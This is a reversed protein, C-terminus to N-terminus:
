HLDHQRMAMPQSQQTKDCRLQCNAIAMKTGSRMNSMEQNCICWCCSFIYKECTQCVDVQKVQLGKQKFIVVYIPTDILTQQFCHNYIYIYM